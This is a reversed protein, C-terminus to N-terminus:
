VAAACCPVGTGDISSNAFATCEFAAIANVVCPPLIPAGDGFKGGDGAGDCTVGASPTGAPGLTPGTPTGGAAPCPTPMAGAGGAARLAGSANGGFAKGAPAAAAKLGAAATASLCRM